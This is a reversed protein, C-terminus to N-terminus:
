SLPLLKLLLHHKCTHIKTVQYFVVVNWSVYQADNTKRRFIFYLKSLNGHRWRRQAHFWLFGGDFKLYSNRLYRDQCKHCKVNKIIRQHWRWPADLPSRRFESRPWLGADTASGEIALFLIISSSLSLTTCSYLCIFFFCISLFSFFLRHVNVCLPTENKNYLTYQTYM